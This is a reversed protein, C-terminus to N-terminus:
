GVAAMQTLSLWDVVKITRCRGKARVQADTWIMGDAKASRESGVIWGAGVGVAYFGIPVPMIVEM